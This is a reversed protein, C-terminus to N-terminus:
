PAIARATGAPGLPRRPVGAPGRGARDHARGVPHLPRCPGGASVPDAGPRVGRVDRGPAPRVDEPRPASRGEHGRRVGHLVHGSLRDRRRGPSLALLGGALGVGGGSEATGYEDNWTIGLGFREYRVMDLLPASCVVAAFQDPHQTMAAGVLLGGNSGGYIGLGAPEAWGEGVLWRACAAFDDFVNQKWARMGARHWSEGFESGGRLNAIAWVGGAEVWAATTASYAPTLASTSGATATSCPRTAAPRARRRRDPVDPVRTGDDSTVWVQRASIGALRAGPRAARGVSTAAPDTAPMPRLRATLGADTPAATLDAHLVSPPTLYDGYSVWVDGGGEPRSTVSASGLGPLALTAVPAGTLRDVAGIEAVVDRAPVRRRGHRDPRLVGPSRRVRRGSGGLRGPGPARPPRRRAEVEPSGRQTLLYLRGDFGVHPYTLVDENEQVVTWAPVGAAPVEGLYVDNRPATGLSVSVVVWRGDHSVSVGYYATKDRGEGFILVDEGIPTGLRRRWVRRHFQDEGPPRRDDGLRRVYLLESWRAALGCGSGARM